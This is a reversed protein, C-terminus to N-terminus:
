AEVVVDAITCIWYGQERWLRCVLLPALHDSRLRYRDSFDSIKALSTRVIKSSIQMLNRDGSSKKM